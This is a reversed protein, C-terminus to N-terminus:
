AVAPWAVWVAAVWVAWVAWAVVWVGMGGGAMGGMGGMGGDMQALIIQDATAPSKVLVPWAGAATTAVISATSLLAIIIGTHRM